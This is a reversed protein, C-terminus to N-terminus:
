AHRRAFTALADQLAPVLAESTIPKVLYGSAGAQRARAQNGENAYATVMLICVPYAAMIQRTAEIGDMVPMRIDMLVIDPQERLVAEVAAAGSGAVGVVTLGARTLARRLQLQTIGEDECIVVRKGALSVRAGPADQSNPSLDNPSSSKSEEGPSVAIRTRATLTPFSSLARCITPSSLRSWSSDSTRMDCRTSAPRSAPAKMRFRSFSRRSRGTFFSRSRGMATVTIGKPPNVM